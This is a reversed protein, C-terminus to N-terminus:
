FQLKNLPMNFTTGGDPGDIILEVYPNDILETTDGDGDADNTDKTVKSWTMTTGEFVITGTCNGGLPSLGQEVQAPPVDVTGGEYDGSTDNFAADSKYRTGCKEGFVAEEIEKAFKAYLRSELNKIFKAYNTNKLAAQRKEEDSARKDRIADKRTQEQMEIYLYHQSTGIGSFSPNKFYHTMQDAAATSIIQTYAWMAVALTMILLLLNIFNNQIKKRKKKKSGM